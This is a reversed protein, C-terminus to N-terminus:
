RVRWVRVGDVGNETRKACRYLRGWPKHSLSISLCAARMQQLTRDHVFFSWGPRLERWPYLRHSSFEASDPLPPGDEALYTASRNGGGPLEAADTPLNM